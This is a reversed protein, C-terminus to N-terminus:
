ASARRFRNERSRGRGLGLGPGSDSDAFEAEVHEQADGREHRQLLARTAEDIKEAADKVMDADEFPIQGILKVILAVLGIGNRFAYRVIQMVIGGENVIRVREKKPEENPEDVEREAPSRRAEGIRRTEMPYEQEGRHVTRRTQSPPGVKEIPQESADVTSLHSQLSERVKGVLTPSVKCELAIRRDSWDRSFSHELATRVVRRKDADTRPLGHEANAKLAFLVCDDLPGMHLKARVTAREERKAAEIRHRGDGVWFSEGDHFLDVPPLEVGDHLLERYSEVTAEDLESAGRDRVKPSDVINIDEIDVLPAFGDDEVAFGDNEVPPPNLEDYAQDSM